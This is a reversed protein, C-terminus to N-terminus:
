CLRLAAGDAAHEDRCGVVDTAGADGVVYAVDAVGEAHAFGHCECRGRTLKQLILSTSRAVAATEYTM